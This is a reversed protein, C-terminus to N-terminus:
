RRGAASPNSALAQMADLKPEKAAAAAAAKRDSSRCLVDPREPAWLGASQGGAGGGGFRCFM